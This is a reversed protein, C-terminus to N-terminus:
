WLQSREFRSACASRSCSLGSTRGRGAPSGLERRLLRLQRTRRGTTTGPLWSLSRGSAGYPVLAGEISLFVPSVVSSHNRIVEGADLPELRLEPLDRIAQPGIRVERRVLVEHEDLAQHLGLVHRLRRLRVTGSRGDAVVVIGLGDGMADVDGCRGNGRGHRRRLVALGLRALLRADADPEGVIQPMDPRRQHLRIEGRVEGRSEVQHQELHAPGHEGEAVLRVREVYGHTLSGVPGRGPDVIRLEFDPRRALGHQRVTGAQREVPQLDLVVAFGEGRETGQGHGVLLRQEGGAHRARHLGLEGELELGTGLEFGGDGPEADVERAM